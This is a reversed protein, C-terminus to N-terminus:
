NSEVRHTSSVSHNQKLFKRMTITNQKNTTENKYALSKEFTPSQGDRPLPLGDTKVTTAVAIGFWGSCDDFSTTLLVFVFASVFSVLASGSLATLNIDNLKRWRIGVGGVGAEREGQRDRKKKWTKDNVNLKRQKQNKTWKKKRNPMRPRLFIEIYMNWYSIVNWMNVLFSICLVFCFSVFCFLLCFFFVAQTDPWM